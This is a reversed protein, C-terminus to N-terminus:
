HGGHGKERERPLLGSGTTLGTQDRSEAGAQGRTPTSAAAPRWPGWVEQSAGRGHVNGSVVAGLPHLISGLSLPEEELLKPSDMGVLLQSSVGQVQPLPGAGSSVAASCMPIFRQALGVESRLTSPSWSHLSGPTSPMLLCM